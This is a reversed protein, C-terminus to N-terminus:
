QATSLGYRTPGAEDTAVASAPVAEVAPAVSDAGAEDTAAANQGPRRRLTPLGPAKPPKAGDYRDGFGCRTPPGFSLRNGRAENRTLKEPM